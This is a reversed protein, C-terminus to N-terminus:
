KNLMELKNILLEEFENYDIFGDSNGVAEEM